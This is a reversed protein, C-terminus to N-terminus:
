KESFTLPKDDGNFHYLARTHKDPELEADRSPPTFPATYRRIDSIRMEDFAGGPELSLRVPPGLPRDGAAPIVWGPRGDVFLALEMTSKGNADAVAGWVMAVHIWKGREIVVPQCRCQAWGPGQPGAVEFTSYLTYAWADAGNNYYLHWVRDQADRLQIL